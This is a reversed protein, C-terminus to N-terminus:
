GLCPIQCVSRYPLSRSLDKGTLKMRPFFVPGPALLRPRKSVTASHGLRRVRQSIINRSVFHLM